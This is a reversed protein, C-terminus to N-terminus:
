GNRGPTAPGRNDAVSSFPASGVSSFSAVPEDTELRGHGPNQHQAPNVMTSPLFPDSMGLVSRAVNALAMRAARDVGGSATPANGPNSGYGNIRRSSQTDPRTTSATM